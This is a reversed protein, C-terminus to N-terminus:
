WQLWFYVSKAHNIRMGLVPYVTCNGQWVLFCIFNLCSQSSLVGAKQFLVLLFGTKLLVSKKRKTDEPKPKVTQTELKICYYTHEM